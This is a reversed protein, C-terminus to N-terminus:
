KITGYDNLILAGKPVVFRKTKNLIIRGNNHLEISSGIQPYIYINRLEGRDIILKSGPEITISVGNYCNIFGSISLTSSNRIVVHKHLYM